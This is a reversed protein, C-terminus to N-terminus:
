YRLAKVKWIDGDEPYHLLEASDIPGHEGKEAADGLGAFGDCTVFM